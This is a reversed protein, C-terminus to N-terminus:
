PQSQVLVIFACKGFKDPNHKMELSKNEFPHHPLSVAKLLKSSLFSFFDSKKAAVSSLLPFILGLPENLRNCCFVSVLRCLTMQLTIHRQWFQLSDCTPQRWPTGMQGQGGWLSPKMLLQFFVSPHALSRAESQRDPGSGPSCTHVSHAEKEVWHSGPCSSTKVASALCGLCVVAKHSYSKKSSGQAMKKTM